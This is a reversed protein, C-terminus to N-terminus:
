PRPFGKVSLPALLVAESMTRAHLAPLWASRPRRPARLGNRFPDHPDGCWACRAEYAAFRHSPNTACVTFGADVVGKLTRYWDRASPRRGPKRHGKVFAAEFLRRIPRPLRAYRPAGAPPELKGKRPDSWPYLGALTKRELTDLQQVLSGRAQYPRMGNLFLQFLLVALAYRDHPIRTGRFTALDTGLLEPPWYLRDGVSCCYRGWLGRPVEFSDTDLFLPTLRRSVLINRDNLDGAAYGMRHLTRVVHCIRLGLRVLNDWTLASGGLGHRRSSSLVQYLPVFDRQVQIRPMVYGVFGERRARGAYLIALPWTLVPFGDVLDYAGPPPRAIMARVKDHAERTRGRPFLIKVALRPEGDVAFVEGQGGSGLREAQKWTRGTADVLTPAM